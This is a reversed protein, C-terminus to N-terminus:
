LKKTTLRNSLFSGVIRWIVFTIASNIGARIINFPILIPLIMEVVAERPVGLFIPTFILNFFVMTATTAVIGALMSILLWKAGNGFRLMLGMTLVLSGVSLINMIIGIPGSHASVTFGQVLAVVVTLILGAAPGYILTALMQTVEAPTYELFPAAPIIPFRIFFVMVISIAALMAMQTLQRLPM